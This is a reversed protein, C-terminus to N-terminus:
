IVVPENLYTIVTLLVHRCKFNDLEKTQDIYSQGGIILELWDTQSDAVINVNTRTMGNVEIVLEILTGQSIM